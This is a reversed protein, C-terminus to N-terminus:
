ATPRLNSDKMAHWAHHTHSLLNFRRITTGFITPEVGVVWGVYYFAYTEGTGKENLATRATEKRRISPYLWTTLCPDKVGETTRELRM